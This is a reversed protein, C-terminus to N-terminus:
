QIVRANMPLTSWPATAQPEVYEYGAAAIWAMAQELSHERFTVTGCGIEM